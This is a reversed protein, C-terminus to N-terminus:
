REARSTAAEDMLVSYIDLWEAWLKVYEAASPVHLAQELQEPSTDHPVQLQKEAVVRKGLDLSVLLNLVEQRTVTAKLQDPSPTVGAQGAQARVAEGFKAQADDFIADVRAVSYKADGVYAAADPASKGCAGLSLVALATVTAVAVLRRVRM